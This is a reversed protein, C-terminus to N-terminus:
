VQSGWDKCKVETRNLRKFDREVAGIEVVGSWAFEFSRHVVGFILRVVGVMLSLSCVPSFWGREVLIIAVCVLWALVGLM